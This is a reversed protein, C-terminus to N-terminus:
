RGRVSGTLSRATPDGTGDEAESHLVDVETADAGLTQPLEAEDQDHGAHALEDAGAQTGGRASREAAHLHSKMVLQTVREASCEVKRVRFRM